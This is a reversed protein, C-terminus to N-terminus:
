VQAQMLVVQSSPKSFQLHSTGVDLTGLEAPRPTAQPKELQNWRSAAAAQGPAVTWSASSQPTGVM